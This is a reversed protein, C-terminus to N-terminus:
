IHLAVAQVATGSRLARKVAWAKGGDTRLLTGAM